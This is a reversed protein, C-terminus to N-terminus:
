TVLGLQGNLVQVLILTQGFTLMWLKVFLRCTHYTLFLNHISRLSDKSRYGKLGIHPEKMIFPMSQLILTFWITSICLFMSTVKLIIVLELLCFYCLKWLPEGFPQESILYVM